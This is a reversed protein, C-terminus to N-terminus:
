ARVRAFHEPAWKVGCGFAKTIPTRVPTGSLVDDLAARLERANGKAADHQEGDVWGQYALRRNADFVFVHPTCLAGYAEAVTQSEDYVYPFVLGREKGHAVMNPFSDDPYDVAYNSNIAIFGVERAAYDRAVQNLRGEFAKAYPCHNCHWFVVLAKRGAFSSLSYLRGDVGKLSQFDPAADGIRLKYNGSTTVM